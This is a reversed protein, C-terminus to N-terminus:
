SADRLRSMSDRCANLSAAARSNTRRSGWVASARSERIEGESSRSNSPLDIRKATSLLVCSARTGEKGRMRFERMIFVNGAHHRGIPLIEDADPARTPLSM